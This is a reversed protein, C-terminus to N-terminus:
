RDVANVRRECSYNAPFFISYFSTVLILLVLLRSCALLYDHVRSHIFTRVRSFMKTYQHIPMGSRFLAAVDFYGQRKRSQSFPHLYLISLSTSLFSRPPPTLDARLLPM